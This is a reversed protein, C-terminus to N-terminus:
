FLNFCDTLHILYIHPPNSNLIFSASNVIPLLENMKEITWELYRFRWQNLAYEEILREFFKIKKLKKRHICIRIDRFTGIDQICCSFEIQKVKVKNTEIQPEHSEM